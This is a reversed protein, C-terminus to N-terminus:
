RSREQHRTALRTSVATERDREDLTLDLRHLQAQLRPQLRQELARRRRRTSALEREVRQLATSAAAHQAAADLAARFTTSTPALASTTTLKPTPTPECRVTGPYTVGMSSQWAIDVTALCSQDHLRALESSAGLARARLLWIRADALRERWAAETRAAHARLRTSERQLAEEKNHLLEAAHTALALRSRLQLRVARNAPTTSTM